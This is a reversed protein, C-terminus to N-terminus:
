RRDARSFRWFRRRDWEGFRQESGHDWDYIFAGSNLDSSFHRDIAFGNETALREVYAPAPRAGRSNIAEENVEAREDVVLVHHPDTSDAVVTEMIVDDAMEFCQLLHKDIDEIHYLLGFHLLLDFEGLWRFDGDLDVHEFRLGAVARHKLQGYTMNELRGEACVVEAGLSAFFAGIDGHGAGVELIRLGDFHEIGYIGLIKSIRRARWEDYSDGFLGDRRTASSMFVFEDIPSRLEARLNTEVQRVVKATGLRAQAARRIRRALALNM